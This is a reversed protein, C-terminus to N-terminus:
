TFHADVCGVAVALRARAVAAPGALLGQDVLDALVADVLDRGAQVEATVERAVHPADAAPGPTVVDDM